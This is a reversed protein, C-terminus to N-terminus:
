QKRPPPSAVRGSTSTAPAPFRMPQPAFAPSAVPSTYAGPIPVADYTQEGPAAGIHHQERPAPRDFGTQDLVPTAQQIRVPPPQLAFTPRGNASTNAATASAFVSEHQRAYEADEDDYDDDALHDGKEGKEGYDSLPGFMPRVPTKQFGPTNPASQSRLQALYLDSRARDRLNMSKHLKRKSHFRYFVVAYISITIVEVVVEIVCCILSWNQPM